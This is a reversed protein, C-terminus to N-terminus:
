YNRIGRGDKVSAGSFWGSYPFLRVLFKKYTFIIKNDGKYSIEYGLKEIEKIAYEMRQPELEKQREIDLRAM